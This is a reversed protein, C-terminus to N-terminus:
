LTALAARQARRHEATGNHRFQMAERLATLHAPPLNYDEAVPNLDALMGQRMLPRHRSDYM